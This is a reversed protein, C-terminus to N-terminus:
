GRCQRVGIPVAVQYAREAGLQRWIIHNPKPGAIERFEPGPRLQQIAQRGPNLMTIYRRIVVLYNDTEAM